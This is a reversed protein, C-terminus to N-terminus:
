LEQEKEVIQQSRMEKYFKPKNEKKLENDSMESYKEFFSEEYEKLLFGSDKIMEIFREDNLNMFYQSTLILAMRKEKSPYLESDKGKALKDYTFKIYERKERDSLEPIGEQYYQKLMDIHYKIRENYKPTLEDEEVQKEGKLISIAVKMEEEILNEMLYEALDKAYEYEEKTTNSIYNIFDNKYTNDYEDKLKNTYVEKDEKSNYEYWIQQFENMLSPVSKHLIEEDLLRTTKCVITEYNKERLAYLIKSAENSLKISDKDSNAVLDKIFFEQVKTAINIFKKNDIWQKLEKETINCKKLLKIHEGDLEKIIGERLGVVIDNPCYEIVDIIKVLDAEIIAPTMKRDAGKIASCKIMEGRLDEKTKQLNPVFEKQTGEGNHCAYADDIYWLSNKIRDLKAQSLKPHAEKIKEIIKDHINYRYLMKRTGEISHCMQGCGNDKLVMSIVYEGDHGWFTHGIDHYSGMIKAINACLGLEKAAQYALQGVRRQHTLRNSTMSNGMRNTLAMMTKKYSEENYPDLVSKITDSYEELLDVNERDLKALKQILERTNVIDLYSNLRGLELTQLSEKDTVKYNAEKSKKGNIDKM